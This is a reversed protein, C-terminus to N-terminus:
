QEILKKVLLLGVRQEAPSMKGKKIYKV